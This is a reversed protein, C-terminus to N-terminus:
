EEIKLEDNVGEELYRMQRIIWEKKKKVAPSPKSASWKLPLPLIAAIAAAENTNLKSVPKNFYYQAAAEAGYIGDGTEIVNLYVELIREKSWFVEILATFYVELGKRLWTRGDWLFVNKATQQSITSAGKIKKGNKKKNYKLAKQIAKIDFGYHDFFLQDESAVVAIPMEPSMEDLSVWDKKLRVERKDDAM